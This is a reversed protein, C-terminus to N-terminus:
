QGLYCKPQPLFQFISTAYSASGGDEMGQPTNDGILKNL